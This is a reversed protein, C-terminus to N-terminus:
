LHLGTERHRGAHCVKMASLATLKHHIKRDDTSLLWLDGRSRDKMIDFGTRRYVVYNGDPSIQPDGTYELQFVDLYEFNTLTQSTTSVTCLVALFAILIYKKM